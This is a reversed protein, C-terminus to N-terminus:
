RYFSPSRLLMLLAGKKGLDDEYKYFSLLSDATEDSTGQLNDSDRKGMRLFPRRDREAPLLHLPRDTSHLIHEGERESAGEKMPYISSMAAARFNFAFLRLHGEGARGWRCPPRMPM